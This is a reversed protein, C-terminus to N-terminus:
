YFISARNIGIFPAFGGPVDSPVCSEFAIAMSFPSSRQPAIFQPQWPLTPQYAVQMLCSSRAEACADDGQLASARAIPQQKV